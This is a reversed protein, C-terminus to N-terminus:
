IHILSLLQAYLGNSTSLGGSHHPTVKRKIDESLNSLYQPPHPPDHPGSPKTHTVWAKNEYPNNNSSEQVTTKSPHLAARNAGNDARENGDIGIHSRVKHFHTLKGGEARERLEALIDHLLHLHKSDRLTWPSNLTRLILSLSCGSDTYIDLSTASQSRGSKLAQHIGSLEARNITITTGKGMPNITITIAGQGDNTDPFYVAAGITRSGDPLM